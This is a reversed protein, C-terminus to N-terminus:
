LVFFRGFCYWSIVRKKWKREEDTKPHVKVADQCLKLDCASSLANFPLLSSVGISCTKDYCKDHARCAADLGRDDFDFPGLDKHTNRDKNNGPGCWNGYWPALGYPDSENIPNNEVYAYFNIGGNFSIPDESIFRGVQPDYYRARYYYLGSEPDFERSTYTYPNASDGTQLMVSGFADYVYSQVVEGAANTTQMISGLGDPHYFSSEGDRDMILPEDIGPGHTYRALLNNSGDLELLITQNDYIYKTIAGNVNKQIRRGLGDYKYEAFGGGPLDIRTLQNESDYSLRTLAGTSRDQKSILNGNADYQYVFNDDQLLRNAAEYAYTASLHSDLRNGVPDYSFSEEPNFDQPHTAHILRHLGDYDFRNLGELDTRTIRNGVRDYTYQFSSIPTAQRRNALSALRSAADYTYTVSTNNPLNLQTRRSLADYTFTIDAPQAPGDCSPTSPMRTLRSLADYCYRTEGPQGTIAMRTRNGNKDYRYTISRAPLIAGGTTAGTLQDALYSMELASETVAGVKKEVRALHGAPDYGYEFTVTPSGVWTKRALRNIGDYVYTIRGGRADTTEVLNGNRDYGFTKSQERPNTVRKLRGMEDYEFRTIQRKADEVLKLLGASGGCCGPEYEYRTVGEAADTVSTLRNMPDYEFLTERGEADRSKIVNGAEDYELCTEGGLPDRSCTRRGRDDYSFTTPNGIADTTSTLLGRSDYTMTTINGAADRTEILNCGPDDYTFTTVNGMPDRLSAVQNCRPDYTYTTVADIASNRSTLLNGQTDYTMTIEVGDPRRIRTPNSHQDRDILTERNLADKIFTAAGFRDNKFTTRNSRGDTFRSNVDATRILPAPRERTGLGSAPDVLGALQSMSVERTIREPAPLEMPVTSRVFRGAFNYEYRTTAVRADTRLTLRRDSDYDFRVVAGSPDTVRKLNGGEITFTTVRGAPDQVSSLRGNGDYSLQTVLGVPDTISILRGNDDYDYQTTNGNRDVTSVHLGEANFNIKTGDKMTRTFTGDANRVLESFEGEPAGRSSLFVSLWQSAESAVALDLMGDRNFDGVVVSANYLNLDASFNRAVGFNGRGDGLLISVNNSNQNAVALDLNGDRNFDGGVVDAVANGVPFNRAPRFAGDGVGLLISVNNSGGNAVALDLNGDRNFDGVTVSGPNSGVPFNRAAGFSGRGNGLLISVNNSGGNAVALDLKGDRNFDGVVVGTPSNGVPFNGAPQFSGDGNGVLISVTNSYLNAVALDLKGDRNFDGVVVSIPLTGVSFNRPPQFSVDGSAVLISVNNSFLNAVALDLNGDRNFDNAVVSRSGSGGSYPHWARGFNGRGDGLLVSVNNSGWNAVAVDINGDQYFDGVAVSSPQTGVGFIRPPCFDRLGNGLLISVSNSNALSVVIDLNGDKNFDAVAISRPGNGGANRDIRVPFEGRGNGWLISVNNSDWRWNATAIDLNGDNDFDGTIIRIPALGVAFNRAPEFGGAGNGLLVSVNNSGGNATALDLKGDRNFDATIVYGPSTGVPFNRVSKFTGDGVGLLVSVDNSTGNTVALDPINDGDFDGVAISNPGTGVAPRAPLERFTGDGNGLLISVTAPISHTVALDLKGDRNFDEIAVATHYNAVRIIRPEGFGGTRDGLLIAVTDSGNNTMALDLMRDGNFDGTVISYPNSGGSPFDRRVKFLPADTEISFVKATGDGETIAASVGGPDLHLRQLGELGWGAGFPSNRQNNILLQDAMAASYRNQYNNYNNFTIMAYPYVGTALNNADFQMAVRYPTNLEPPPNYFVEGRLERNVILRTSLTQPIAM